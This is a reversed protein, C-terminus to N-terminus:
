PHLQKQDLTRDFMPIDEAARALFYDRAELVRQCQEIVGAVAAPDIEGISDLWHRIRAEQDSTLPVAPPDFHPTYPEVAVVGTHARLMECQTIAPYCIVELPNRGPYYILWRQASTATAEAHVETNVGQPTVPTECTCALVPAPQATVEPEGVINKPTVARGNVAATTAETVKECKTPHDAVGARNSTQVGTVGTAEAKLSALLTDIGM